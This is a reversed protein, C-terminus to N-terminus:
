RGFLLGAGAGIAAGKWAGSGKHKSTLVGTVAGIAGYKVAKGVQQAATPQYYPNYQNSYYQDCQYGDYYPDCAFVISSTSIVIAVALTSVLMKKIKMM